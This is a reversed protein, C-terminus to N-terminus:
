LLLDIVGAFVHLGNVVDAPIRVNLRNPDQLDRETLVGKANAEVEELIELAELNRLVDLVESRVKPPTRTSLKERPFRLEVRERVAKATYDLTRITTMDLLSIDTVGSPNVTYTSVSRVIRVIEGPGVELPTVGNHLMAEQETRSLRATDPPAAIGTLRLTNLPRAPDEESAAVAAYAACLEEPLSATGPLCALSIRGSNLSGALTTASSLSQGTAVWATARRQELPGSVAELHDRLATLQASAAWPLCYITYDAAFVAALADNINPDQQGGTMQTVVASYGPVTSSVSLAISNGTTGRNKATLTLVDGEIGSTVPLDQEGTIAQHLATLTDAAADQYAAAVAVQTTGITLSLVGAGTSAGTLTLTGTAAIGAAHPAVPLLSLQLYPYANIAARCMIHAQSGYGCLAAAQMDDFIQVPELAPAAAPLHQAIILMRQENTALTRVALTTNFEFYKGPKRISAPIKEFSINTSAM